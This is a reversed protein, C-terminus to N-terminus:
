HLQFPQCDQLILGIKQVYSANTAMKKRWFGPLPGIDAGGMCIAKDTPCAECSGPQNMIILSYSNGECKICKGVTTFQEGEVCERLKLDLQLSLEQKGLQQMAEKNSPKGLDIGDTSFSLQLQQGPTSSIKVQNIITIGGLVQFDRSGEIIPPYKIDKDILYSQSVAIKVKSASDSGVIQGYKYSYYIAGGALPDIPQIALEPINIAKNGIFKNDKLIISQANDLM